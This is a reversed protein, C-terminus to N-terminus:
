MDPIKKTRNLLKWEGFEQTFEYIVRNPDTAALMSFYFPIMELYMRNDIIIIDFVKQDTAPDFKNIDIEIEPEGDFKGNGTLGVSYIVPKRADAILLRHGRNTNIAELSLGDLGEIKDIIKKSETDIAYLIGKCEKHDSNFISSAYLTKLDCDYKLDMVGFPNQKTVLEDGFNIFESMEGSSSNIIHIKNQEKPPNKYINLYPRPNLYINGKEDTTVWGIQGISEWEELQMKRGNNDFITLKQLDLNLRYPPALAYNNPFEPMTNCYIDPDNAKLIYELSEQSKKKCSIFIVSIIIILITFRQIM